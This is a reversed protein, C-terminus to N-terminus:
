LAFAAVTDDVAFTPSAASLAVPVRGEVEPPVALPFTALKVSASGL